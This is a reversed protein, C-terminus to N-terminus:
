SKRLRKLIFKKLSRSQDLLFLYVYRTATFPHNTEHLFFSENSWIKKYSEEGITFDFLSINNVQFMELDKPAINNVKKRSWLSQFYKALTITYGM